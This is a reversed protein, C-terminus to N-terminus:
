DVIIKHSEVRSNLDKTTPFFGLSPKGIVLWNDFDLGLKAEDNLQKLTYWWFMRRTTLGTEATLNPPPKDSLWPKKKGTFHVWDRYPAYCGSQSWKVCEHYFVKTPRSVNV